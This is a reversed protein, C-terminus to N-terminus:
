AGVDLVTELWRAMVIGQARQFSRVTPIGPPDPLTSRQLFYGTMAAAVTVLRDRPAAATLECREVLAAVDPGGQLEVSPFLILPDIWAAGVCVHPWDVVRLGAPTLLIQDARLDAHLLTEGAAAEAWREEVAALQELNDPAWPLGLHAVAAPDDRLTRWGRFEAGLREGITPATVPAPTLRESLREVGDLVQQLDDDRWPLRPHRGDIGELMLVVWDDLEFWDLLRPVEPVGALGAVATAETRHM